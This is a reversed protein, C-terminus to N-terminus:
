TKTRKCFKWYFTIVGDAGIERITFREVLLRGIFLLARPCGMALLYGDRAEDDSFGVLEYSFSDFHLCFNASHSAFKCVSCGEGLWLGRPWERQHGEALRGVHFKRGTPPEDTLCSIKKVIPM